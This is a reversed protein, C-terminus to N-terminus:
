TGTPGADPPDYHKLSDPCDYWWCSNWLCQFLAQPYDQVHQAIFHADRGLAEGLLAVIRRQPREAPINSAAAFDAVLQFTMGAQVKAELFLHDTLLRDLEERRGCAQLHTPGFRLAYLRAYDTM